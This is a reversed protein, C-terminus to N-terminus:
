LLLLSPEWNLYHSLRSICTFLSLVFDLLVALYYYYYTFFQSTAFILPLLQSYLLISPPLNYRDTLLTLTSIQPTPSPSAVQPAQTTTLGAAATGAAPQPALDRLVSVGEGAVGSCSSNWYATAGVDCDQSCVRKLEM